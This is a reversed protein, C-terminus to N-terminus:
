FNKKRFESRFSKIVLPVFLTVFFELIFEVALFVFIVHIRLSALDFIYNDQLLTFIGVIVLMNFLSSIDGLQFLGFRTIFDDTVRKVSEPEYIDMVDNIIKPKEKKLTIIGRLVTAEMVFGIVKYGFKM